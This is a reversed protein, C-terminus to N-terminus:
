VRKHKRVNRNRQTISAKTLKQQRKGLNKKCFGDSKEFELKQDAEPVYAHLARIRASTRRSLNECNQKRHDCEQRM